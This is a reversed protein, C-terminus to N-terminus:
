FMSFIIVLFVIILWIVAGVIPNNMLKKKSTNKKNKCDYFIGEKTKEWEDRFQKYKDLVSETYGYYEYVDSRLEDIKSLSAANTGIDKYYQKNKQEQEKGVLYGVVPGGLATAIISSSMASAPKYPVSPMTIIASALKNYARAYQPQLDLLHKKDKETLINQYKTINDCMGKLIAAESYKDVRPDQVIANINFYINNELFPKNKIYNNDLLYDFFKRSDLEDTLGLYNLIDSYSAGKEAVLYKIIDDYFYTYMRENKSIKEVSRNLLIIGDDIILGNNNIIRIIDEDIYVELKKIILKIYKIDIYGIDELYNYILEYIYEDINNISYIKYNFKDVVDNVVILNDKILLKIVLLLVYYEYKGLLMYIDYLNAYVKDNTLKYVANMFENKITNITTMKLKYDSDIINLRLLIKLYAFREGKWCNKIENVNEGDSLKNIINRILTDERWPICWNERSGSLNHETYFDYKLVNKESDITLIKGNFVNIYRQTLIEIEDDNFIDNFLLTIIHSIYEKLNKENKQKCGNLYLEVSNRILHGLISKIFGSKDIERLKELIEESKAMNEKYKKSYVIRRYCDIDCLVEKDSYEDLGNSVNHYLSFHLDSENLGCKLAYEKYTGGDYRIDVFPKNEKLFKLIIYRVIKEDDSLKKLKYGCHPCADLTDSFERKCEECKILAM